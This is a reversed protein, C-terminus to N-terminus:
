FNTCSFSSFLFETIYAFRFFYLIEKSGLSTHLWAFARQLMAEERRPPVRTRNYSQPAIRLVFYYNEECRYFSFSLGFTCSHSAVFAENKNKTPYLFFGCCM